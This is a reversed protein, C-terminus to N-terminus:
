TNLFLCSAILTICNSTEGHELIGSDRVIISKPVWTIVQEDLTISIIGINGSM